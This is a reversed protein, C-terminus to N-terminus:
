LLLESSDGIEKESGDIGPRECFSAPARDRPFGAGPTILVPFATDRYVAIWYKPSGTQRSVWAYM